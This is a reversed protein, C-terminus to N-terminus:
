DPARGFLADGRDADPRYRLAAGCQHRLAAAFVGGRGGGDIRYAIRIAIHGAGAAAARRRWAGIACRAIAGAPRLSSLVMAPWFGGVVVLACGGLLLWGLLAPNRWYDFQADAYMFANVHPLLLETLAVALLMAIAVLVLVEGLFQVALVRRGAGALKRVGVELARSGARATLLNVFNVCAIALVVLGLAAVMVIRSTFGPNMQPDTNVRDIRLLHM